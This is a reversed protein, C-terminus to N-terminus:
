FCAFHSGSALLVCKPQESDESKESILENNQNRGSGMGFNDDKKSLWKRNRCGNNAVMTLMKNAM